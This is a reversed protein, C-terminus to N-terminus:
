QPVRIIEGGALVIGCAYEFGDHHSVLNDVANKVGTEDLGSVVWVVNECVGIGKPNWPSQTAQIFGAEATYETALNGEMAFVKLRDDKFHIYFGLRDWIQNLEEMSRCDITGLLILNSSEKENLMLANISKTHISKVGLQSLRDAIRRADGEWGGQYAIITSYVVGGYGHLFPEPFDGIIAPVFQGFSWDRFEWHEIDGDRLIYDGAGINASIGNVYFLWDKRIRNVGEYESSIGNIARIFGGGYKTEVEAVQQLADLATTNQGIEVTKELLIEKGFDSAVVVKVSPNYDTILPNGNSAPPSPNVSCSCLLASLLVIGLLGAPKKNKRM